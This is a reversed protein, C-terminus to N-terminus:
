GLSTDKPVMHVDLPTEPSSLVPVKHYKGLTSPTDNDTPTFPFANDSSDNPALYTRYRRMQGLTDKKPADGRRKKTAALRTEMLCPTSQETAQHRRRRRQLIPKQKREM